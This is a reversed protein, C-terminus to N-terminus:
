KNLFNRDKLNSFQIYLEEEFETKSHRRFTIPYSAYLFTKLGLTHIDKEFEERKSTKKQIQEEEPEDFDILPLVDLGKLSYDDPNDLMLEFMKVTDGPIGALTLNAKGDKIFGYTKLKYYIAMDFEKEIKWEGLDDGIKFFKPINEGLLHISDTDSYLWLSGCNKAHSILYARAYSTIAAGIYVYSAGGTLTKEDTTIKGSDDIEIITNVYEPLRAMNGSLANLMMKYVRKNGPTTANQKKTFYEDIYEEFLEKSTLFEIYDIHVINLVNYNEYMLKYDTQTLTLEILNYNGEKEEVYENTHYNYFQSTELWGRKHLFTQRDKPPIQLCPVGNEKLRFAVKVHIFMYTYGAESHRWNQATPEGKHFEFRKCPMNFNKMVFPYLSNIDLVYGHANIIDSSNAKGRTINLGGHYAKRCYQELTEKGVKVRNADILKNNLEWFGSVAKWKRRAYGSITTPMQKEIGCDDNLIKISRYVALAYRKQPEEIDWDYCWTDIIKQPSNLNVINDYNILVIARKKHKITINYVNLDGNILYKFENNRMKKVPLNEKVPTFGAIWLTKIFDFLYTNFGTIYINEADKCQNLLDSIACPLDEPAYERYYVGNFLVWQTLNTGPIRYNVLTKM